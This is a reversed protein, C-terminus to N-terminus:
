IELYIPLYTLSFRIKSFLSVRLNRNYTSYTYIDLGQIELDLNIERSIKEVYKRNKM